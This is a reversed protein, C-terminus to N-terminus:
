PLPPTYFVDTRTHPFVKLHIYIIYEGIFPPHKGCLCNDVEHSSLILMAVHVTTAPSSTVLVSVSSEVSTILEVSDVSVEDFGSSPIIIAAAMPADTVTTKTATAM